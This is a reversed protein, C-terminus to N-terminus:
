VHHFALRYVLIALVGAVLATFVFALWSPARPDPDPDPVIPVIFPGAIFEFGAM